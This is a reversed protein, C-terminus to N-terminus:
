KKSKDKKKDKDKKKKKDKKTKEPQIGMARRMEKGYSVLIESGSKIKRLAIINIKGKYDEYQVNKKLESGYADCVYRGLGSSTKRADIVRRTGLTMGYEGYGFDVYRENYQKTTIVEGSYELVTDGRKYKRDTFLGLGANPVTSQAVWFGLESRTHEECYPHTVVTIHKCRQGKENKYACRAKVKITHNLDAM